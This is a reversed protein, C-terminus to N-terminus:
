SPAEELLQKEKAVWRAVRRPLMDARVAMDEYSVGARWMARVALVKETDSLPPLPELGNAAREVAVLDLGDDTTTDTTSVWVCPRRTLFTTSAGPM